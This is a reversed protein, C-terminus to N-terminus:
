EGTFPSQDKESIGNFIVRNDNEFGAPSSDTFDFIYSLCVEKETYISLNDM